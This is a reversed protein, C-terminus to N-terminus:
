RLRNRSRIFTNFIAFSELYISTCWDLTTSTQVAVEISRQRTFTVFEDEFRIFSIYLILYAHTPKLQM